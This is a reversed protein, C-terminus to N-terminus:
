GKGHRSIRGQRTQGSWAQKREGKEKEEGLRVVQPTGALIGFVSGKAMGGVLCSLIDRIVRTRWGKRETVIEIADTKVRSQDAIGSKFNAKDKLVLSQHIM